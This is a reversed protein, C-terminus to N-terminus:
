HSNESAKRCIDKHIALVQPILASSGDNVIEYDSLPRKESDPWQAKMRKEVSEATTADRDVVRKIRLERPATVLINADLSKYIGTEFNIAAEKLIYDADAHKEVWKAFAKGVAPHVIANLKDRLAENGFVKKALFPRNPQEGNYAEGGFLSLIQDRVEPNSELISRAELDANFVPVGLTEFILSVLSKGAGIGGTIGIKLPGPKSKRLKRSMQLAM